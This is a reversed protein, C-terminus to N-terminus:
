TPCAGRGPRSSVRVSVSRPLSQGASLNQYLLFCQLLHTTSVVVLFVVTLKTATWLGGEGFFPEPPCAPAAPGAGFPDRRSLSAKPMLEWGNYLPM